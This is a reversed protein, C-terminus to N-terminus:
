TLWHNNSYQCMYEDNPRLSNFERLKLSLHQDLHWVVAFDNTSLGFFLQTMSVSAILWSYITNWFSIFGNKLHSKEESMGSTITRPSSVVLESLLLLYFWIHPITIAGSIRTLFQKPQRIEAKVDLSVGPTRAIPEPSWINAAIARFLCLATGHLKYHGSLKRLLILGIHLNPILLIVWIFGHYTIVWWHVKIAVERTFGQYM